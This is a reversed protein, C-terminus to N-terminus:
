ATRSATLEAGEQIVKLGSIRGDGLREFEFRSILPPSIFEDDGVPLLELPPQGPTVLHLREDDLTVTFRMGTESVYDGTLGELDAPSVAVLRSEQGDYGPWGFEDAIAQLIETILPLGTDANTMVAAGMGGERYMTLECRFGANGGTHGFRRGEQSGALFFGLGIQPDIQPTLMQEMAERTLIGTSNGALIKQLSIGFRALDSPTTWLGAAALEPYANYKGYMAGGGARHGSAAENWDGEPLPQRFHSRTMGLPDLVTRQMYTAFSEGAVDAILQQLVTFGGGSYRFHTGPLLDVEVPMTNAPAAGNLISVVDPLEHGLPYGPFGRVTLGAAHSVLQRITVSPQWGDNSPVKWSRLYVNVDADLDLAGQEVLRMMGVAAVPKSISAAQFLTEANVPENSDVDRVGYGHSWVIQGNDVIAVSVGPVGYSGMRELIIFRRAQESDAPGTAALEREFRPGPSRPDDSM